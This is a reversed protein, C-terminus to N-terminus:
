RIKKPNPTAPIVIAGSVVGPVLVEGQQFKDPSPIVQRVDFTKILVVGGIGKRGGFKDAVSEYISWSTYISNNDGENHETPTASGGRPVAMGKLANGYDPHGNYVGRYLTILGEDKLDIPEDSTLPVTIPQTPEKIMTPILLAGLTAGGVSVVGTGFGELYSAGASSLEGV